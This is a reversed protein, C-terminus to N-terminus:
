QEVHFMKKFLWINSKKHFKKNVHTNVKVFDLKLPEFIRSKTTIPHWNFIKSLNMVNSFCIASKDKETWYCIKNVWLFSNQTIICHWTLIKFLIFLIFFLHVSQLYGVYYTKSFPSNGCTQLTVFNERHDWEWKM